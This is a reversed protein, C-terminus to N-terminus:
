SFSFNGIGLTEPTKINSSQSMLINFLKLEYNKQNFCNKALNYSFHGLSQCFDYNKLLYDINKFSDELNKYMLGSSAYSIYEANFQSYPAVIAKKYSYFNLINQALIKTDLFVFRSMSILPSIEQMSANELCFANEFERKKMLDIIKKDIKNESFLIMKYTKPCKKLFEELFGINEFSYHYLFYDGLISTDVQSFIDPEPAFDKILIIKKKSIGSKILINAFFHSNVLFFDIYKEYFLVKLNISYDFIEPFFMKSIIGRDNKQICSEDIKQVVLSNSNTKNEVLKMLKQMNFTKIIKFDKNSLLM